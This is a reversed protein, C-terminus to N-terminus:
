EEPTIPEESTSKKQRSKKEGQSEDGEAETTDTRSVRKRTGSSKGGLSISALKEILEERDEAYVKAYALGRTAKQLLENQSADLSEKISAIRAQAEQLELAKARVQEAYQELVDANIDPFTVASLEERFLSLLEKIPEPVPDDILEQTMAIEL